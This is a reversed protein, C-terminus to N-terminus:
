TETKMNTYKEGNFTKFDDKQAKTSLFHSYIRVVHDERKYGYAGNVDQKRINIKSKKTGTRNPKITSNVQLYINKQM